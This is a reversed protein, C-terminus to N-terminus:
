LHFLSQSCNKKRLAVSVTSFLWLKAVDVLCHSHYQFPDPLFSYGLQPVIRASVELSQADQGLNLSFVEGSVFGSSKSTRVATTIFLVVKQSIISHLGNFTLRRKPSVDGGDEPNFFIRLNQKGGAKV